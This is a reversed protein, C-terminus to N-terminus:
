ETEDDDDDVESETDPEAVPEADLTLGEALAYLGSDILSHITEGNPLVNVDDLTLGRAPVGQIFPGGTDPDGLYELIIESM